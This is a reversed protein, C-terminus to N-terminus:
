RAAIVGTPRHSSLLRHYTRVLYECGGLCSVSQSRWPKETIWGTLSQEKAVGTVSM